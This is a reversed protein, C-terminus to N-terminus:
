HNSNPNLKRYYRKKQLITFYKLIRYTKMIIQENKRISRQDTQIRPNIIIIKM